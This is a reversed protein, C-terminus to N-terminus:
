GGVKETPVIKAGLQPLHNRVDFLGKGEVIKGGSQPQFITKQSVWRRWVVGQNGLYIYKDHMLINRILMAAHEAKDVAAKDGATHGDGDASSEAYCYADINYRSDTKQRTSNNSSGLDFTGTDYWVNVIPSLDDPNGRFMEWPNSRNRYVRLKYDAADLGEGPALAQQAASEAALISAIATGLIQSYDQKNLIPISQTM